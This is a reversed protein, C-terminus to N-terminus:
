GGCGDLAKCRRAGGLVLMGGAIEASRSELTDRKCKVTYVGIINCSEQLM